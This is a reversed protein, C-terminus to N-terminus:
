MKSSHVNFGHLFRKVNYCSPNCSGDCQDGMQNKESKRRMTLRNRNNHKYMTRKQQIKINENLKYVTNRYSETNNILLATLAGCGQVGQRQVQKDTNTNHM